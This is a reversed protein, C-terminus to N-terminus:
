ELKLLKALTSTSHTKIKPIVVASAGVREAQKMKKDIIPDGETFAIVDPHIKKIAEFYAEDTQMPPLAIVEDVFRLAELMAKRQEQTHFPRGEGKIRQITEDSELMIVLTDGNQKATKLFAVHGYHILDFCGGVLVTKM